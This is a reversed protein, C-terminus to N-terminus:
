IALLANQDDLLRCLAVHARVGAVTAGVFGCCVQVDFTIGAAIWVERRLDRDPTCFSKGSSNVLIGARDAGSTM